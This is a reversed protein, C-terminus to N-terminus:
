VQFIKRSGLSFGLAFAKPSTVVLEGWLFYRRGQL